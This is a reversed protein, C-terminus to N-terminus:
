RDGDLIRLFKFCGKPDFGTDGLKSHRLVVLHDRLWWKARSDTKYREEKDLYSQSLKPWKKSTLWACCVRPNCDTSWDLPCSQLAANRWRPTQIFSHIIFSAHLAACLLLSCTHELLLLCHKCTSTPLRLTSHEFHQIQGENANNCSAPWLRQTM